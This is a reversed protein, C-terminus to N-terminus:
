AGRTSQLPPLGVVRRGEETKISFDGGSYARGEPGCLFAVAEAVWEPPIHESWDLRSVPNVRSRKIKAMMDTAVTGPSLGVVGVGEASLEAHACETLKKVAAKTTCYASWGELASNAAGSSMNVIVGGRAKLHPLALRMVFFVGKLNVDVARVWDGADADSFRAIPDIVGANNVVFDLGGFAEVTQTIATDVEELKAVDCPAALVPRREAFFQGAVTDLADANRAALAVNAGLDSLKRAVALGIGRNAGTVLATKGSFDLM